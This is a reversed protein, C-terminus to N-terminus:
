EISGSKTRARNDRVIRFFGFVFSQLLLLVTLIMTDQSTWWVPGTVFHGDRWVLQRPVGKVLLALGLAADLLLVWLGIFAVAFRVKRRIATQESM